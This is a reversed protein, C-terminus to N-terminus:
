ATPGRNRALASASVILDAFVLDSAGLRLATLFSVLNFLRLSLRFSDNMMEPCTFARPQIPGPM